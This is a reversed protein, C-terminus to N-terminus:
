QRHEINALAQKNNGKYKVTSAQKPKFHKLLLSRDLHDVREIQRRVTSQNYGKEVFRKM